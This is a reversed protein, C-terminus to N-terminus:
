YYPESKIMDAAKEAIMIVAANPAGKPPSPIVSADIVRLRDFGKVKLTSDVVSGIACTGTYHYATVAMNTVYCRWFDRSGPRRSRCEPLKLGILEAGMQRFFPTNLVRKHNIIYDAMNEVDQKDTLFGTTIIPDDFPNTSNLRVTGRSKPVLNALITFLTDRTAAEKQLRDCIDKRYWFTNHCVLTLQPTDHPLLLGYTQYDPCLQSNNIAVSGTIVPFPLKSPNAALEIPNPVPLLHKQTKYVLITTVQDTFSNGVPLDSLVDIEKSHLHDRPGKPTEPSNLDLVTPHGIKAFAELYNTVKDTTERSLGMPGKTGHYEPYKKIIEEDDLNESKIFYKLINQYKWSEDGTIEVWNDFDQPCGRTHILHNLSDCGGLM